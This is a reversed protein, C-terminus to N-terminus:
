IHIFKTDEEQISEKIMIFHEEKNRTMTKTKFDIKHYLYQQGLKKTQKNGNANFMKEMVEGKTQTHIQLSDRTPLM